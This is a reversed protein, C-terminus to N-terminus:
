RNRYPDLNRIRAAEASCLLILREYVALRDAHHDNVLANIFTMCGEAVNETKDKM